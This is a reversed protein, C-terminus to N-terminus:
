LEKQGYIKDRRESAEKMKNYFLRADAITGLSSNNMTKLTLIAYAVEIGKDDKHRESVVRRFEQYIEKDSKMANSTWICARSERALTFFEDLKLADSLDKMASKFDGLAM